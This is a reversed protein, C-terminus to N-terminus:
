VNYPSNLHFSTFVVITFLMNIYGQLQARVMDRTTTCKCFVLVNDRWSAWREVGMGMAMMRGGGIMDCSSLSSSSSEEERSSVCWTKRYLCRRHRRSGGELDGDTVMEM